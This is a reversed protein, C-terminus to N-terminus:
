DFYESYVKLYQNLESIAKIRDETDESKLRNFLRKLPFLYNHLQDHAPGTMTCQKFISAFEDELDTKLQIYTKLSDSESSEDVIVMMKKIGETTAANAEWRKGDNLKLTLDNTGELSVKEPKNEYDASNSCSVVTFLLLGIGLLKFLRNM